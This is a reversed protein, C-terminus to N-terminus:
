GTSTGASEGSTVAGTANTGTGTANTGTGTANTGTGTANTGTGTTEGTIGPTGTTPANTGSPTSAGITAPSPTKPTNTASPTTPGTFTELTPFKPINTISPPTSSPPTPGRLTPANTVTPPQTNTGSPALANAAALSPAGGPDPSAAALPALQPALSPLPGPVPPVFNPPPVLQTAMFPTITFPAATITIAPLFDFTFAFPGIQTTTQLGTIGTFIANNNGFDLSDTFGVTGTNVFFPAFGFVWNGIDVASINNPLGGPLVFGAPAQAASLGKTVNLFFDFPGVQNATQLITAADLIGGSAGFAADAFPNVNGSISGWGDLPFFWPIPDGIHIDIPQLAAIAGPQIVAASQIAPSPRPPSIAPLPAPPAFLLMAAGFAAIGTGVSLHGSGIM